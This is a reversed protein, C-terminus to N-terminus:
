EKEGKVLELNRGFPEDLQISGQFKQTTEGNVLIQVKSAGGSEVISNM